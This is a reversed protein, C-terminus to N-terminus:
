KGNRNGFSMMLVAAYVGTAALVEFSRWGTALSTWSTFAAVFGTIIALRTTDKNVYHLTWLGGSLFALSVFLFIAQALWDMATESTYHTSEPKVQGARNCPKFSLRLWRWEGLLLRLPSREKYVVPFLDRETNAALFHQESPDVAQPHNTTWNRLNRIHHARATPNKRVQGFANVFNDLLDVTLM